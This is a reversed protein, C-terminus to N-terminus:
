SVKGGRRVIRNVLGKQCEQLYKYDLVGEEGSRVGPVWEGYNAARPNLVIMYGDFVKRYYDLNRLEDESAFTRAYTDDVLNPLKFAAQAEEHQEVQEPLAWEIPPRGRGGTQRKGLRVVKGEDALRTMEVPTSGIEKAIAGPHKRLFAEIRNFDETSM